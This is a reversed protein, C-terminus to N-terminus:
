QKVQQEVDYFLPVNEVPAILVINPASCALSYAAVNKGVSNPQERSVLM